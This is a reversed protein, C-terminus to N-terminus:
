DDDRKHTEEKNLFPRIGENFNRLNREFTEFLKKIELNMQPTSWSPTEDIFWTNYLRNIDEQMQKTQEEIVNLLDRLTGNLTSEGSSHRYTADISSRESPLRAGTKGDGFIFTTKGEEDTTVSYNEEGNPTASKVPVATNGFVTASKTTPAPTRLAKQDRFSTYQGSATQNVKSLSRVVMGSLKSTPVTPKDGLRNVIHNAVLTAQSQTAGAVTMSSILKNQNFPEMSGNRKLVNVVSRELGIGIRTSGSSGSM